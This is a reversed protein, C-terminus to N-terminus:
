AGVDCFRRMARRYVWESIVYMVGAACAQHLIMRPTFNGIFVMAPVYITYQFPLFQQLLRLGDPFFTLPILAGSFVMSFLYVVRRIANAQVFWFSSLGIIYHFYFNILFALTVSLVAWPIHSPRMDVGFLFHFIL